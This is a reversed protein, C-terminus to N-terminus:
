KRLLKCLTEFTQLDNAWIEVKKRRDDIWIYNLDNHINLLYDMFGESIMEMKVESFLLYHIMGFPPPQYTYRHTKSFM